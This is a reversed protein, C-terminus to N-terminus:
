LYMCVCVCICVCEHAYVLVNKVKEPDSGSISSVNMEEDDLDGNKSGNLFMSRTHKKLKEQEELDAMAQEIESPIDGNIAHVENLAERRIYTHIHICSYMFRVDCHVTHPRQENIHICTHMYTHSHIYSHINTQSVYM